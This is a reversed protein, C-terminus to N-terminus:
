HDHVLPDDGLGHAAEVSRHEGAIRTLRVSRLLPSRLEPGPAQRKQM